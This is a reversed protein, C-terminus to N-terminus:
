KAALLAAKDAIEAWRADQGLAIAVEFVDRIEKPLRQWVLGFTQVQLEVYGDGPEYIPVVLGENRCTASLWQWMWLLRERNDGRARAEAYYCITAARYCLWTDRRDIPAGSGFEVMQEPPSDIAAQWMNACQDRRSPTALQTIVLNMSGLAIATRVDDPIDFLYM